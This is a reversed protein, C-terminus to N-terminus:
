KSEKSTELQKILAKLMIVEHTLELVKTQYEAIVTESKIEM